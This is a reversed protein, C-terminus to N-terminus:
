VEPWIRLFAYCIKLAFLRFSGYPTSYFLYLHNWNFLDLSFLFVISIKFDMCPFSSVQWWLASCLRHHWTHLLRMIHGRGGERITLPRIAKLWDSALSARQCAARHCQLAAAARLPRVKGAHQTVRTGAKTISSSRTSNPCIQTDWPAVRVSFVPTRHSAQVHEGRCHGGSGCENERWHKKFTDSEGSGQGYGGGHHWNRNSWKTDCLQQSSLRQKFIM